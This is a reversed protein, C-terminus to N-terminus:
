LVDRAFPQSSGLPAFHMSRHTESAVLPGGRALDDYIRRQTAAAHMVCLWALWASILQLLQRYVGSACHEMSAECANLAVPAVNAINDPCLSEHCCCLSLGVRLMSPPLAFVLLTATLAALMLMCTAKSRTPKFWQRISTSAIGM